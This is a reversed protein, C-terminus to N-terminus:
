KQMIDTTPINLILRTLPLTVRTIFIERTSNMQVTGSLRLAIIKRFLASDIM